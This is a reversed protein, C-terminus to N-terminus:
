AEKEDTDESTDKQDMDLLDLGEARRERAARRNEARQHYYGLAFMGQQRLTLTMPYSQLGAQIDELRGELARYAAPRDRRLKQLHPQAGRMIRGFVTAPASSATGYYRAVIGAGVEGLAAYQVAELEAFLRGCLYAPDHNSINLETMSDEQEKDIEQRSALVMKILAARPRRVGQELRCREVAKFLLTAPLPGGALACRLLDRFVWPAPADNGGTRVTAAALSYIGVPRPEEGGAGVITQLQFFRALHLQAEGVTTDIWDRVVARAGSATLATAYFPTPDLAVPNTGFVSVLLSRVQDPEPRSLISAFSFPSPDRTWFIYRVNGLRLDTNPDAILASVAKMFRDSCEQCTPAVYSADLGYSTFAEENASILALGGSQGGPIGKLKLQLREMAPADRGCVLCQMRTGEAAARVWFSQVSPLDTPCVGDVHFGIWASPNFDAPVPLTSPDAFELFHLVARVAPEGTANACRRVLDVFAQHRRQAKDNDSDGRALGLAYEANDVLLQAKIGSSRVLTPVPVSKPRRKGEAAEVPVIGRLEGDGTLEVWYGIPKEEYMSPAIDVDPRRSYDVLRQLLM